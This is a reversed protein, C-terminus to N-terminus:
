GDRAEAVVEAPHRSLRVLVPRGDPAHPLVPTIEEKRNLQRRKSCSEGTESTDPVGLLRIQDLESTVDLETAIASSLARLPQDDRLRDVVVPRILRPFHHLQLGAVEFALSM